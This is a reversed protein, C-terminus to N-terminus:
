QKVFTYREISDYTHVMLMYTGSEISHLDLVTQNNSSARSQSLVVKGTIDMVQITQVNMVDTWSVNLQDYAPNPFVSLASMNVEEVGVCNGNLIQITDSNTCGASDAVTVSYTGPETVVIGSQWGAPAWNYSVFDGASLFIQEGTCIIQDEGLDVKPSVVVPLVNMCGETRVGESQEFTATVYGITESSGGFQSGGEHHFYMRSNWPSFTITAMDSLNFYAQVTSQLSTSINYRVISQGGNSRYTLYYDGEIQEAVGWASWTEATNFALQAYSATGIDSVDGTALDIHYLTQDISTWILVYGYGACIINQGFNNDIAIPESLNITQNTILDLSTNMPIIEDVEYNTFYTGSMPTGNNAFTFLDGDELDSFIGDRQPLSIMNGLNAADARVTQFDGVYYVYDETVAIGGRDDGSFANHDMVSGNTSLTSMYFENADILEGYYFNIDGNIPGVTVTSGEDFPSEDNPSDFWGANNVIASIDVEEGKCAKVEPDIAPYGVFVEISDYGVCGNSDTYEYVIAHTGAGADAPIFADNSVGPGSISGGNPITRMEFENEQNVCYSDFLSSISPVPDPLIECFIPALASYCDDNVNYEAVYYTRSESLSPTTFSTGTAVSPVVTTATDFWHITNSSAPASLAFSSPACQPTPDSVAPVNVNQCSNCNTSWYALTRSPGGSCFVVSSGCCEGLHVRVTGSVNSTWTVQSGLGCFDDNSAIFSNSVTTIRLYPDGTYSGGNNCHSFVYTCGFEADFTYYGGTSFITQPTTSPSLTGQFDSCLSQANANFAAM